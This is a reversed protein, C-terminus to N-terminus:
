AAARQPKAPPKADDVDEDDEGPLPEALRRAAENAQEAAEKVQELVLARRSKKEGDAMEVEADDAILGNADLLAEFYAVRLEAPVTIQADVCAQIATTLAAFDIAAALEAEVVDLGDAKAIQKAAELRASRGLPMASEAGFYRGKMAEMLAAPDRPVAIPPRKVTVARWATEDQPLEGQAVLEYIRREGDDLATKVLDLFAAVGTAADQWVETATRERAADGYERAATVYFEEVKRKLVETAITAPGTEPAIYTHGSGQLVNGGDRLTSVLATFLTDDAELLLKPFNAARLLFDRESERNFLANAKKALSWGVDRRLPLPLFFVPLAPTGDREIYEVGWAQKPVVTITEGTREDKRHRSWGDRELLLYQTVAAPPTTITTRTDVREIVKVAALGDKDTLWDCVSCRPLVRVVSEGDAPDVFLWVGRDLMLRTAMDALVSKMGNGDRDARRWLRGVITDSDDISGLGAASADGSARAKATADPPVFRRETERDAQSIMGRFSDIITALHNTYDALRCRELFSETTEGSAKRVLYSAVLAADIVDGTYHHWTFEWREVNAKFDSHRIDLWSPKTGVGGTADPATGGLAGTTVAGTLAILDHTGGHATKM